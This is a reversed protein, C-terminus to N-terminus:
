TTTTTKKKKHQLPLEAHTQIHQKIQIHVVQPIFYVQIIIIHIYLLDVEYHENDQMAEYTLGQFILFTNDVQGQLCMNHLQMDLYFNRIGNVIVTSLRM